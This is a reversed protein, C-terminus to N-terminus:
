RKRSAGADKEDDVYKSDLMYGEAPRMGDAAQFPRKSGPGSPVKREPYGATRLRCADEPRNPNSPNSGFGLPELGDVFKDFKEREADTLPQTTGPM